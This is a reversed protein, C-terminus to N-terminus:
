RKEGGCTDSYGGLHGGHSRCRNQAPFTDLFCNLVENLSNGLKWLNFGNQQSPAITPPFNPRDNVFPIVFNHVSHNLLFPHKQVLQAGLLAFHIKTEVDNDSLPTRQFLEKGRQGLNQKPPLSCHGYFGNVQLLEPVVPAEQLTEVSGAGEVSIPCRCNSEIDGNMGNFGKQSTLANVTMRMLFSSDMHPCKQRMQPSGVATQLSGATEGAIFSDVWWWSQQALENVTVQGGYQVLKADGWSNKM